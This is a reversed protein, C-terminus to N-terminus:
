KATSEFEWIYVGCVTIEVIRFVLMVSDLNTADLNITIVATDGSRDAPAVEVKSFEKMIKHFTKSFKNRNLSTHELKSNAPLGGLVDLLQQTENLINM